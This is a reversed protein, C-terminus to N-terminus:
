AEIVEKVEQEIFAQCTRIIKDYMNKIALEATRGNEKAFITEGFYVTAQYTYFETKLIKIEPFNKHGLDLLRTYMEIIKTAYDM